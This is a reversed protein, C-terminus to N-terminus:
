LWEKLRQEVSQRQLEKGPYKTEGELFFGTAQATPVKSPGLIGGLQIASPDKTGLCNKSLHCFKLFSHRPIFLRDM